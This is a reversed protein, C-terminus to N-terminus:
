FLLVGLSEFFEVVDCYFCEDGFSSGFVNIGIMDGMLLCWENDFVMKFVWCDVLSIVGYWEMVFIFVGM